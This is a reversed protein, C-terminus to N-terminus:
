NHMSCSLIARMRLVLFHYCIFIYRFTQPFYKVLFLNIRWLCLGPRHWIWKSGLIGNRTLVQNVAGFHQTVNDTHVAGDLALCVLWEDDGSVSDFRVRSFINSVRLWQSREVGAQGSRNVCPLCASGGQHQNRYHALVPGSGTRHWPRIWSKSTLSTCIYTLHSINWIRNKREGKLDARPHQTICQFYIETHFFFWM